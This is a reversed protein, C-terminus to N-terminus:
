EVRIGAERILAGWKEREARIYRRFTAPDAPAVDFGQATLREHVEPHVLAQVLAANLERLLPAPTRAPAFAGFWQVVEFGPFGQEAVTPTDPLARVRAAGTVALARLRGATVHPASTAAAGILLNVHGGLVDNIAVGAGKYPVHLLRIGSLKMLLEGAMHSNTATGNSAYSVAGPRAAAHRVLDQLSRVPLSPHAVIVNPIRILSTVPEFDREADYPLRQQLGPAIAHTSSTGLVLAHGDPASAAVIQLGIVGGGGARNDVVVQQGWREALKQGVLRVVIDGSGGPPYPVVFRVPRVPFRAADQTSAAGATSLVVCGLLACGGAARASRRMMAGPTNM